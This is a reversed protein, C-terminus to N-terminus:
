GFFVDLRGAVVPVVQDRAGQTLGHKIARGTRALAIMTVLVLGILGSFFFAQSESHNDQSLAYSAPVWMAVSMVAWIILILPLRMLLGPQRPAHKM